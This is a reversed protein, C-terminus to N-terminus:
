NKLKKNKMCMFDFDDFNKKSDEYFNDLINKDFFIDSNHDKKLNFIYLNLNDKYKSEFIHRLLQCGGIIFIPKEYYNKAQNIAYDLTFYNPTEFCFYSVSNSVAITIVHKDFKPLKKNTNKGVICVSNKITEKFIKIMKDSLWPLQINKGIGHNCDMTFIVNLM